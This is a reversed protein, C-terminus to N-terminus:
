AVIDQIIIRCHIHIHTYNYSSSSSSTIIILSVTLKFFMQRKSDSSDTRPLKLRNRQPSTWTWFGPPTNATCGVVTSVQEWIGAAAAIIIFCPRPQRICLQLHVTPMFIISGRCRGTLQSIRSNGRAQPSRFHDVVLPTGRTFSQARAGCRGLGDKSRGDTRSM